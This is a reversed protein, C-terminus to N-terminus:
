TTKVLEVDVFSGFNDSLKLLITDIIVTLSILHKPILSWNKLGGSLWYFLPTHTEYKVLSLDPFKNKFLVIDRRFVIWTLAGNADVAPDNSEFSWSEAKDDYKEHHIYKLVWKSILGVHQDIILLRGKPKLCRSVENLFSEVNSVHHFVNLM